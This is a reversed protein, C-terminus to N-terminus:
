LAPSVVEVVCFIKVLRLSVLPAAPAANEHGDTKTVAACHPLGEGPSQPPNAIVSLGAPRFPLPAMVYPSILQALVPIARSLPGILALGSPEFKLSVTAFLEVIE